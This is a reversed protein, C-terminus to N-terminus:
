RAQSPFKLVTDGARVYGLDERALKEIYAPDSRLREITRALTDTRAKLDGLDREVTELDHKMRWVRVVSNGGMALGGVLVVAAAAFVLRGSV